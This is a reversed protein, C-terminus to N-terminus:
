VMPRAPELFQMKEGGGQPHPSTVGVATVAM